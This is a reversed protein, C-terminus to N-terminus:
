GVEKIMLTLADKIIEQAEIKSTNTYDVLGFDEPVVEYIGLAEMKEIDGTMCAKILQMPFIDMPFVKEMEGTVVLAREEGNLNTNVDFKKKGFLWALSTKSLSPIHNYLFPLWGFIRYENGEPIVTVLNNFYGLYGNESTATGSLVDGNIYRNVQNQNVEAQEFLESLQAGITTKIYHPAGVASGAVAVTRQASFEGTELFVGINVVDEPRITWVTEGMNLPTLQHIQVSLNGAPHKGKVPVYTANEINEFFGGFSAEASLFIEPVLKSLFNIGRQFEETNNKLLFDFDVDLPASAYTSIFLAKPEAKPNAVVGYPRQGIFPWNGSDLLLRIAQERDLKEWQNTKHKVAQDGEPSIVLALIKRKAGRLVQTLKGALPSVFQIEPNNKNFFLPTGKEVVTGEKVLLKPTMAFFDDPQIAVSSSSTYEKIIKEAEGNLSITAGKRTRIGKSM